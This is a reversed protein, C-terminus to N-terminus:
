CSFYNTKIAGILMPNAGVYVWGPPASIWVFHTYAYNAGKYAPDEPIPCVGFVQAKDDHWTVTLGHRIHSAVSIRPPWSYVSTDRPLTEGYSDLLYLVQRLKFTLTPPSPGPGTPIFACSGASKAKPVRSNGPGNGLHPLQLDLSTCDVNGSFPGSFPGSFSDSFPGSFSGSVLGSVSGPASSAQPSAKLILMEEYQDQPLFLVKFTKEPAPAAANFLTEDRFRAAVEAKTLQRSIDIEAAPSLHKSYDIYQRLAQYANGSMRRTEGSRAEERLNAMIVAQSLQLDIKMNDHRSLYQSYDIYNPLVAPVGAFSEGPEVMYVIGGTEDTEDAWTIASILAWAFVIIKVITKYM